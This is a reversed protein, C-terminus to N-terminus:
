ANLDLWEQTCAEAVPLNKAMDEVISREVRRGLLALEVSAHGEFVRTARGPGSSFVRYALVVDIRGGLLSPEIRIEIVDAAKTWVLREIYHLEGPIFPRLVAPLQRRPVVKCVRRLAEPTDDLELVERRAIDVRRDEEAALAPDFYAAFVRAPSAARFEHEFRFPTM